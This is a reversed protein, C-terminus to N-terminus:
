ATEPAAMPRGTELLTKLGALVLSWGGRYSGAETDDRHIREHRLTLRCTPGRQEITFVARSARTASADVWGPLFTMALMWPPDVAEITGSLLVAGDSSRYTYPSGPALDTELRTGYYYSPTVDGSTLAHWLREPTTEIFTEIVLDPHHMLHEEAAELRTTVDHLARAWPRAYRSVWREYLTQIPAANLYHRKERGVAHSVVLHAAELVALHKSCGQRTMPVRETLDRLTLGDRGSLIDLLTRRVPHALARFV